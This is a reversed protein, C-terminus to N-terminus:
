MVHVNEVTVLVEGNRELVIAELTLDSRGEEATWLDIVVEWSNPDSVCRWREAYDWAEEPLPVLTAPYAEIWEGISADTPDSTYAVLGDRALGAYDKDVLRQVVAALRPRWHDPIPSSSPEGPPVDPHRWPVCDDHFLVSTDDLPVIVRPWGPVPAGCKACTDGSGPDGAEAAM